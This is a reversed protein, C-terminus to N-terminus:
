HKDRFLGRALHMMELDDRADPHRGQLIEWGGAQAVLQGASHPRLSVMFPANVDVGARLLTDVVEKNGKFFPYFLPTVRDQLLGGKARTCHTAAMFYWLPLSNSRDQMLQRVIAQRFQRYPHLLLGTAAAMPQGSTMYTNGHLGALSELHSAATARACTLGWVRCASLLSPFLALLLM